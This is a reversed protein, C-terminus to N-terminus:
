KFTGAGNCRTLPFQQKACMAVMRNAAREETDLRSVLSKSIGGAVWSNGAYSGKEYSDAMFNGNQKLSGVCGTFSRGYRRTKIPRTIMVGSYGNPVTAKVTVATQTTWTESYDVGVALALADKIPGVEAGGSVTVSNAVSHGQTVSVDIGGFVGIVVPSM